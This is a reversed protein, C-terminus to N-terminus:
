VSLEFLSAFIDFWAYLLKSFVWIINMSLRIIFGCNVPDRCVCRLLTNCRISRWFYWPSCPISLWLSILLWRAVLYPGTPRLYVVWAEDSPFYLQHLHGGHDLGGGAPHRFLGWPPIECSCFTAATSLTKKSAEPPKPIYTFIYSSSRHWPAVLAGVLYPARGVGRPAGEVRTAAEHSKRSSRWTEQTDEPGLFIM